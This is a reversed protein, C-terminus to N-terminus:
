NDIDWIVQVQTGNGPMSHIDVQAGILMAREMMGVLGFHNGVLLDDLEIRGEMPFGIGNDEILLSVCDQMLKANISIQTAHSHRLANECAEQVIRYLHQEITQPYREENLQIDVKIKVRDGIREMLNDALEEIAPKFGYMLMPPRLDSVIERLRRTLEEYAIQFKPSVNTEELNNRLVALQNLISDHLDLALSLREQEYREIDLQYMKRLQEAHLINSLGIATQNALSQLIPIEALSYLDDPDRRGLLWFGILSDGVRLPLVLRIWEDKSSLHPTYKGSRVVLENIKNEDPLENASVNQTLLIKLNGNHVHMFVFQRVLLSPFVEDHLLLLLSSMSASAAIRSSYTEQLNQYPLKIGLYRQEVFAQFAPFVMVSFFVTLMTLGMMLFVVAEDSVSLLAVQQFLFLLITGLIILFAYASILRNARLELGGMQRRYIVYFYSLPMFPLILFTLYSIKSSTGSILLVILPIIVLAISIGLLGVERRQEPRKVFHLFQLGASGVLALLFALAYVSRPMVQIIEGIAFLISIMYLLPFAWKPTKSLAQPFLWHLHLYVPLILWTVAHLLISSEWLHWGSMAGFILFLATLYNATIFLWRIIDRPRMLLLAVTGFLWYIYALWWINLFRSNFERQTFGPIKWQTTLEVDNRNFLVEIVDGAQADEFLGQRSNEYYDQWSVGGVRTLIDGLQLAPPDSEVYMGVIQGNRSDFHLGTYPARFLIGYTFFLLVFFVFFSLSIDAINRNRFHDKQM